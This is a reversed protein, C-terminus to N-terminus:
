INQNQNIKNNNDHFNSIDGEYLLCQINLYGSSKAQWKEQRKRCKMSGVYTSYKCLTIFAGNKLYHSTLLM